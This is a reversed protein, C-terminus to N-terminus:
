RRKIGLAILGRNGMKRYRTRQKPSTIKQAPKPRVVRNYDSQQTNVVDVVVEAAEATAAVVKKWPGNVTLMKARQLEAGCKQAPTQTTTTNTPATERDFVDKTDDKM